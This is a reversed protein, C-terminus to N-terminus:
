GYRAVLHYLADSAREAALADPDLAADSVDWDCASAVIAGHVAVRHPRERMDVGRVRRMGAPPTSLAPAIRGRALHVSAIPGFPVLLARTHQTCLSRGDPASLSAALATITPEDLLREARIWADRVEQGDFPASPGEDAWALAVRVGIAVRFWGDFGEYESWRSFDHAPLLALEDGAIEAWRDWVGLLREGLGRFLLLRGIVLAGGTADLFGPGPRVPDSHSARM